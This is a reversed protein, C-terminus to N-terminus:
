EATKEEVRNSQWYEVSSLLRDKVRPDTLGAVQPVFGLDHHSHWGVITVGQATAPIVHGDFYVYQEGLKIGQLLAKMSQIWEEVEGPGPERKFYSRVSRAGTEEWSENVEVGEAFTFGKRCRNCIFLWGCGCWPCGMQGPSSILGNAKACKCHSVFEDNAKRLYLHKAM